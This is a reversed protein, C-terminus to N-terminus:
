WIGGMGQPSWRRTQTSYEGWNRLSNRFIHINDFTYEHDSLPLTLCLRSSTSPENMQEPWLCLPSLICPIRLISVFSRYFCSTRTFLDEVKRVNNLSVSYTANNLVTFSTGQNGHNCYIGNNIHNFLPGVTPCTHIWIDCLLPRTVMTLLGLGQSDLFLQQNRIWRLLM